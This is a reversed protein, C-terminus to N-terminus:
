LRNIKWGEFPKITACYPTGDEFAGPINTALMVTPDNSLKDIMDWTIGALPIKMRRSWGGVQGAFEGVDIYIFQGSPKGQIYAGTFRPEHIKQLGNKLQIIISFKIDHGDSRQTQVTEYKSGGGKQIGFDVGPTPSRLLIYLKIDM